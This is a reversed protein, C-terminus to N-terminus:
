KSAKEEGTILATQFKVFAESREQLSWKMLAKDSTDGALCVRMWKTLTTNIMKVGGINGDKDIDYQLSDLVEDREDLTIDKRMKFKRGGETKFEM